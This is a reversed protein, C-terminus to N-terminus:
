PRAKARLSASFSIGLKRAVAENLVVKKDVVNV